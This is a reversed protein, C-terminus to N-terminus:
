YSVTPINGDKRELENRELVLTGPSFRHVSTEDNAKSEPHYVPEVNM